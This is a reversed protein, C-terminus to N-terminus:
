MDLTSISFLKPLRKEWKPRHLLATVPPNPLLADVLESDITNLDEITLVTFKNVPLQPVSIALWM